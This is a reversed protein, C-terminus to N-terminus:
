LYFLEGMQKRLAPGYGNAITGDAATHYDYPLSYVNEVPWVTRMRRSRILHELLLRRGAEVVTAYAPDRYHNTTENPDSALDYLEGEDSDFMESQYHVFRWNEWRIAKSWPNETVAHPKVSEARGSLIPSIDVGDATDMGPAGCLATITPAMDVHEVFADSAQGARTVGPVRWILPVRCVADSCIGPAKEAIGYTGSYGGHDATYVVATNKDLGTETLFDLLLGAAHDVHTICALYGHWLRQAGADFTKPEISWGMKRFWDYSNRFHPPRGSPDQNLTPPLALDEPYMDWFPKAPTFPQHPRQLSVQICFPTAGSETMFRRAEDVSWGEQSHEFPLKSPFGELWSEPHTEFHHMDEVDMLGLRRIMDYYPTDMRKGEASTDYDLFEDVHRAIWNRPNDPTHINGIAATRYGHGKMHGLFSPLSAPAPGSLGYYGHNHCYQGSLLSVRSPTCIPSQTYARRLRMGSAALRDLNPTIAQPHGEHAVCTALHQDAIIM